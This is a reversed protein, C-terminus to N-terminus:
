NVIDKPRKVKYLGTCSPWVDSCCPLIHFSSSVQPTNRHQSTTKSCSTYLDADSGIHQPDVNEKHDSYQPTWSDSIKAIKAAKDSAADTQERKSRVSVTKENVCQRDVACTRGNDRPTWIKGNPTGCGNRSCTGVSPLDSVQRSETAASTQDSTSSSSSNSHSAVEAIDETCTAMEATTSM